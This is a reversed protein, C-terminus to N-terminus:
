NENDRYKRMNNSCKKHKCHIPSRMMPSFQDSCKQQKLSLKAKTNITLGKHHIAKSSDQALLKDIGEEIDISM